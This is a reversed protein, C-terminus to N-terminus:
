PPLLEFAKVEVKDCVVGSRQWDFVVDDVDPDVPLRLYAAGNLYVAVENKLRVLDLTVLEHDGGLRADPRDLETRTHVDFEALVKADRCWASWTAELGSSSLSLRDNRGDNGGALFAASVLRVNHYPRVAPYRVPRTAKSQDREVISLRLSSPIAAHDGSTRLKLRIQLHANKLPRAIGFIESVLSGPAVRHTAAPVYPEGSLDGHLHQLEGTIDKKKVDLLGGPYPPATEKWAQLLAIDDATWPFFPSRYNALEGLEDIKGTSTLLPLLGPVFMTPVVGASDFHGLFRSTSQEAGVTQQMKFIAEFYASLVDPSYGRDIARHWATEALVADTQWNLCALVVDKDWEQSRNNRMKLYALDIRNFPRHVVGIPGPPVWFTMKGREASVSYFQQDRKPRRVWLSEGWLTQNEIRYILDGVKLGANEAPTGPRVAFVEAGTLPMNAVSLKAAERFHQKAQAKEEEYRQESLLERFPNEAAGASWDGM